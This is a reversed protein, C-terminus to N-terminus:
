IKASLILMKLVNSYYDDQRPLSGSVGARYGGLELVWRGIEQMGSSAPYTANRNGTLDVWAPWYAHGPDAWFRRAAQVPAEDELGAWCLYLPVRVADYSFRGPWRPPLALAGDARRLSLWDPPLSWRGFRARRLLALGDRALRLWAPDPVARALVGFIPFAYYSPNLVVHDAEEFGHLAPLLVTGGAVERLLLRLVDRAIAAGAETYAADGWRQGALLLAAAAFLDGDAANNRDPVPTLGGPMYRWALLSDRPRALVQRTWGWIRDFSDRDGCREACYLAWGQGESHSVGQNGTDVVRGEPRLFAQRFHRWSEALAPPPPAGPLPAAALAGAVPMGAASSTALAALLARRPVSSPM